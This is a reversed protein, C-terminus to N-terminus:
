GICLRSAARVSLVVCGTKPVVAGFGLRNDKNGRGALEQFPNGWCSRRYVKDGSDPTGSPGSPDRAVCPPRLDFGSPALSSVVPFLDHRRRM